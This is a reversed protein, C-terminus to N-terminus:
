RRPKGRLGPAIEPLRMAPMQMQRQFAQIRAMAELEERQLRDMNDKATGTIVTTFPDTGVMYILTSKPESMLQEMPVAFDQGPPVYRSADDAIQRIDDSRVVLTRPPTTALIFTCLM